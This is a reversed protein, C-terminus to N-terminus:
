MGQGRGKMGGKMDGGGRKDGSPKMDEMMKMMDSMKAMMADMKAMMADMGGGGMSDAARTRADTARLQEYGRLYRDMDETMGM